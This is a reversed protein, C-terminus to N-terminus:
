RAVAARGVQDPDYVAGNKWMGWVVAALSRAVNRRANRPTLGQSRWQEHQRAFPNGDKSGKMIVSEAAGLIASKLARNAGREVHVWEPGAGSGERVLGIGMYKWLAQKSKFRWPTDLYVWLTMARIPGIGPLAQWRTVQENGQALAVLRRRWAKQATVAADYFGWLLEVNARVGALEPAEGLRALLGPRLAAPAFDKERVMVGWRRFLGLVQNALSVRAQVQRHYLGVTQKAVQRSLSEPHHVPRLYGGLYLDV